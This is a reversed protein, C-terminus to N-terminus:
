RPSREAPGTDHVGNGAVPPVAAPRREPGAPPADGLATRVREGTRSFKLICYVARM